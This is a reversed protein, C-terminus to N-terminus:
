AAQWPFLPLDMSEIREHVQKIEEARGSIVVSWADHAEADYGDAEFAVLPDSM